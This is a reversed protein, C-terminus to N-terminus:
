PSLGSVLHLLGDVARSAWGAVRDLGLRYYGRVVYTAKAVTLGGNRGHTHPRVTTERSRHLM